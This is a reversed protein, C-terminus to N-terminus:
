NGITDRLGSILKLVGYKNGNNIELEISDLFTHVESYILNALNRRVILQADHHAAHCAGEPLRYFCSLTTEFIFEEMKGRIPEINPSVDCVTSLCMAPSISNIGIFGTRRHKLKDLIDM